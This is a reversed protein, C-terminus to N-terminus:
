SSLLQSKLQEASIGSKILYQFLETHFIKLGECYVSPNNFRHKKSFRNVIGGGGCVNEWCCKKCLDPSNTFATDLEKFIPVAFFQKLTTNFINTNTWTVTAPDTSMLEDTPGIDGDTRIVILHLNDLDISGQGYILGSTGLFKKIYSDFFRIQINPNDDKVWCDFIEKIFIGYKIPLFPLAKDHSYDPWLFDFGTIGLNNVFHNYLVKPAYQPNIVSLIGFDCDHEQLLKIAKEVRNYSGTGKHDVRYVDNYDANGDLSIGLKIKYTEFIKIWDKDILVGNTQMSLDFEKVKPSLEQYFRDCISEFKKKPMLLPEGGHLTIGV